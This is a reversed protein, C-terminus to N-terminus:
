AQEAGAAQLALLEQLEAPSLGRAFENWKEAVKALTENGDPTSSYNPVRKLARPQVRYQELVLSVRPEAGTMKTVEHALAGDFRMLAGERPCCTAVIGHEDLLRLQGGKLDAPVQTYLVCVERPACDFGLWGNLSCDRHQLVQGGDTVVLANLYFANAGDHVLAADLFAKAFPHESVVAGQPEQQLRLIQQHAKARRDRRRPKVHQAVEAARSPRVALRRPPLLNPATAKM